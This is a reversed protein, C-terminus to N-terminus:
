KKYSRLTQTSLYLLGSGVIKVIDTTYTGIKLHSHFLKKLEHYNFVLKYVSAPLINVDICSGLGARLYQNRTQHPKLKYVLNTILHSPTLIKKGEAQSQQIKVQLCFSEDSSLCDEPHSCVSKDCAYNASAQLM